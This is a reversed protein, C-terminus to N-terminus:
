VSASPQSLAPASPGGELTKQASRLAAAYSANLALSTTGDEQRVEWLGRSPWKAPSTGDVQDVLPYLCIGEIRAGSQRAARAETAIERIWAGRRIGTHSTEAIAIPRQYRRNVGMLLSSLPLRRQDDLQWALRKGSGLEWQNDAYYNVGVLDLYRARGGLEKAARGAVWDWAEFQLETREQARSALAPQGQPAVVHELPDTHMLRAHPVRALIAESACISARVLQRKIEALSPRSGDAQKLEGRSHLSWALFSIENIPVFVPVAAPDSEAMRQAVAAAYRAFREVFSASLFRLDVPWRKCCLTWIVQMGLDKARCARKELPRLDPGTPNDDIRAWDANERVTRLGFEHLRSYSDLPTNPAHIAGPGDFGGMWFSSFAKAQSFNTQALRARARQVTRAPAARSSLHSPLDLVPVQLRPAVASPRIGSTRANM